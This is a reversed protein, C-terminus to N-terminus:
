DFYWSLLLSFSIYRAWTDICAELLLHFKCSPRSFIRPNRQATLHALLIGCQFVSSLLLSTAVEWYEPSAM